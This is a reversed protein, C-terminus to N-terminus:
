SDSDSCKFEIPDGMKAAGVKSNLREHFTEAIEM